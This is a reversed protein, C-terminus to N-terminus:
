PALNGWKEQWCKDCARKYCQTSEGFLDHPCTELGWKVVERIGAKFSIEALYRERNASFGQPNRLEAADLLSKLQKAEM